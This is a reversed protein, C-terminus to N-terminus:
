ENTVFEKGGGPFFALSSGGSGELIEAEAGGEGESNGVVKQPPYPYKRSSYLVTQMCESFYMDFIFKCGFTANTNVNFM